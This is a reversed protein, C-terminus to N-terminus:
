GLQCGPVGLHACAQDYRPRAQGHRPRPRGVTDCSWAATDCCQARAGARQAASAMGRAGAGHRLRGLAKDHGQLASYQLVAGAKPGGETM